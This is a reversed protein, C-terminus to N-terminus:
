TLNEYHKCLNAIRTAFCDGDSTGPRPQRQLTAQRSKDVNAAAERCSGNGLVIEQRLEFCRSPPQCKDTIVRPHLQEIPIRKCISAGEGGEIDLVQVRNVVSNPLHAEGKIHSEMM